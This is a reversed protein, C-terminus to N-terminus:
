HVSTSVGGGGERYSNGRHYKLFRLERRYIFCPNVSQLCMLIQVLECCAVKEYSFPEGFHTAQLITIIQNDNDDNNDKGEDNHDLHDNRDNNGNNDSIYNENDDNDNKSDDGNRTDYDLTDDLIYDPFLSTEERVKQFSNAM